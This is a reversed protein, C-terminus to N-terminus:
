PNDTLSLVTLFYKLSQREIGDLIIRRGQDASGYNESLDKLEM